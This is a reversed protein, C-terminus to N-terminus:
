GRAAKRFLRALWSQRRQETHRLEPVGVDEALIRNMMMNNMMLDEEIQRTKEDTSERGVISTYCFFQWKFQM